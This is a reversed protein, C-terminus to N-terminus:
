TIEYEYLLTGKIEIRNNGNPSHSGQSYHVFRMVILQLM